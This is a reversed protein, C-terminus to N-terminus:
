IRPARADRTRPPATGRSAERGCHAGGLAFCDWNLRERLKNRWGGADVSGEWKGMEGQKQRGWGRDGMGREKQAVRGTHQFGKESREPTPRRAAESAPAHAQDLWAKRDGNARNDNVVAASDQKKIV